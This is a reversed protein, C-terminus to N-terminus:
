PILRQLNKKQVIKTFKSLEDIFAQLKEPPPEPLNHGKSDAGISVFEPNIARIMDVFEPLDFDMVPEISIMKSLTQAAFGMVRAREDTRPALSIDPYSRNTEITCALVSGQPFVFGRYGSPNKTQFLYKNDFRHCHDIVKGIWVGPISAAFMDNSSGVFIYNGQGLDTQLEKEVFHLPKQKGWMKMYCYVCDHPCKGKVGNFTHTVFPYM